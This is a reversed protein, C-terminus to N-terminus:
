MPHQKTQLRKRKRIDCKYVLVQPFFLEIPCKLSYCFFVYSFESYAM